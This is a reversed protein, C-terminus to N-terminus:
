LGVGVIPSASIVTENRKSCNELQVGRQDAALARCSVLQRMSGGAALLAGRPQTPLGRAKNVRLAVVLLDAAFRRVVLSRFPKKHGDM